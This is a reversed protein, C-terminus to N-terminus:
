YYIHPIGQGMFLRLENGEVYKMFTTCDFPQNDTPTVRHGKPAILLINTETKNNRKHILNDRNENIEWIKFM